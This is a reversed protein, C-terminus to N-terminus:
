GAGTRDRGRPGPQRTKEAIAGRYITAYQRAVAESGFRSLAFTRGQVGMRAREQSQGLLRDVAGALAIHDGPPVLLGTRGPLVIDPIGGSDFAVVPTECMLAEVATLGLGEEIAPIIHIAARRYLPALEAQTLLPLWNVRQAVGLQEAMQRLHADDVRGAGVVDVTPTTTMLPLARLLHHLGKQETLKGVFLLRGPERAGGPHFLDSIVPMPAVVPNL